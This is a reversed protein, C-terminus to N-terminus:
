RCTKMWPHGDDERKKPATEPEEATEEETEEKAETQQPIEAEKEEDPFLDMITQGAPVKESSTGFKESYFLQLQARLFDNEARLRANESAMQQYWTERETLQPSSDQLKKM